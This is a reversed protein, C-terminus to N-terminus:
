PCDTPPCSPWLNFVVIPCTYVTWQFIVFTEKRCAERYLSAVVMMQINLSEIAGNSITESRKDAYFRIGVFCIIILIKLISPYVSVWIIYQEYLYLNYGLYKILM